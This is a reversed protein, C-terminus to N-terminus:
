GRGHRNRGHRHGIQRPAAGIDRVDHLESWLRLPVAAYAQRRCLAEEDKRFSAPKYYMPLDGVSRPFTVPLKGGPNVKGFLMDAFANGGEQGLYWGEVLANAKDALRTVTLPRGNILLAVIPKGTGIMAEVLTDQDGFLGLSNRDGPAGANIAERTIEPVDGM